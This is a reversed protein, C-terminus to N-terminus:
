GTQVNKYVELTERACKEWSFKKAQEKGAASFKERLEKNGALEAMGKAIGETDRPDIFYAAEGAIEPISSVKSVLCPAGCAMAEVITQGFGEYLSPMVFFEANSYLPKLEDGGIYGTFVVDEAIGFDEAQQFYEETLWGKKGAVVLQFDSGNPFDKKFRSFAELLRSLNKRPELTGLFLIYKGLIGHGKKVDEKSFLEDGFFRSDIGNYITTIHAEPYGLLDRADRKTSESVTIIRDSKKAAFSYLTKLKATSLRPFLEPVRYPAFDYFTTVIKGRYSAPVRYLPSTTHLVDMRERAFTAMGLIESYAAPMYKKYDSFPFFKVKVNPRSFRKVDKDRVKFDFFLIYQNEQDIELLNKILQWVYNAVGTPASKEPNLIARADIGIRM